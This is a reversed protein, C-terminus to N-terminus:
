QKGVAYLRYNQIEVDVRARGLAEIGLYVGALQVDSWDTPPRRWKHATLLKSLPVRYTVYGTKPNLAPLSYGIVPEVGRADYYAAEGGGEGVTPPGWVARRDYLGAVDCAEAPPHSPPGWWNENETCGDYEPDKWFVVEVNYTELVRFTNQQEWRFTAGLHVRGRGVRWDVVPKAELRASDVARQVKRLSVQVDVYLNESASPRPVARNLDFSDQVGAWTFQDLYEGTNLKDLIMRLAYRGTPQREFRISWVKGPGILAPPIIDGRLYTPPMGENYSAIVWALPRNNTHRSFDCDRQMTESPRWWGNERTDNFIHCNSRILPDWSYEKVRGWTHSEQGIANPGVIFSLLVVSVRVGIM